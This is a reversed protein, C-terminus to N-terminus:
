DGIALKWESIAEGFAAFVDEVTRAAALEADIRQRLGPPILDSRFDRLPKGAKVRKVAFREWRGLEMRLQRLVERRVSADRGRSSGPLRASGSEVHLAGGGLTVAGGRGRLTVQRPCRAVCGEVLDPPLCVRGEREQAGHDLLLARAEGGGLVVGVGSLIRLTADHIAEIEDASLVSLRM